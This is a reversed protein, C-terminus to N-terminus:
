SLVGGGANTATTSTDAMWTGNYSKLKVSNGIFGNMTVVHYISNIGNAPTTVTHAFATGSLITLTKGDDTGAVPLALTLAALSTAMIVATGSKIGIAGSQVETEVKDGATIDPSGPGVTGAFGPLPTALQSPALVVVPHVAADHTTEHATEHVTDLM